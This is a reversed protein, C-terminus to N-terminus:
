CADSGLIRLSRRSSNTLRFPAKVQQGPTIASLVQETRDLVWSDRPTQNDWYAWGGALLLGVLLLAGGIYLPFRRKM